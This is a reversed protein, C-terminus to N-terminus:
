AHWANAWATITSTPGATSTALALLSEPRQVMWGVGWGTIVPLKRQPTDHVEAVAQEV